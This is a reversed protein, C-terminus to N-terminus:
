RHDITVGDDSPDNAYYQRRAHHYYPHFKIPDFRSLVVGLIPAGVSRLDAAAEEIAQKTSRNADTVLIVTDVISALDIADSVGLIPASDFVIYDASPSLDTIIQRMEVSALGSGMLQPHISGSRILRLNEVPGPTIAESIDALGALVDSLGIGRLGRFYRQLGPRRLDSSVLLIRHDAQALTVALNAATTTKGEGAQPSTIMITKVPRQSSTFLVRTRLSRYAEAAQRDALARGEYLVALEGNSETSEPIMAILPAGVTEEIEERGRLRRDMRDRLLALGCGLFLGLFLGLGGSRLHNPSFPTRPLYAQQLVQGVSANKALFLENELSQQQTIQSTLSSMRSSLAQIEANSSASALDQQADALQANLDALLTDLSTLSQDVNSLLLNRRFDLYADAYAQATKMAARPDASVSSFELASTNPTNSVSIGAPDLGAESVRQSAADAVESSTAVQIENEIVSVSSVLVEATSRYMPTQRLSNALAAGLVVVTAGIVWWKRLVFISVYDRPESNRTETAM